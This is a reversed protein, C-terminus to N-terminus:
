VLSDSAHANCGAKSGFGNALTLSPASRPFTDRAQLTRSVTEASAGCSQSLAERTRFFRAHELCGCVYDFRTCSVQKEDKVIWRSDGLHGLFSPYTSTSCLRLLKRHAVYHQPPITGEMDAYM